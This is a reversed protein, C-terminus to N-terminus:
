ASIIFGTRDKGEIWRPAKGRGTWTAGTVPNRYKPIAISAATKQKHPIHFVDEVTLAYQTVIKQVQDIADKLEAKRIEEAKIQLTKIQEQIDKYSANM